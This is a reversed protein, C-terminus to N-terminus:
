VTPQNIATKWVKIHQELWEECNMSNDAVFGNYEEYNVTNCKAAATANVLIQQIFVSSQYM